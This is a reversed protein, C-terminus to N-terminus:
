EEGYFEGGSYKGGGNIIEDIGQIIEQIADGRAEIADLEEMASNDRKEANKLEEDAVKSLAHFYDLTAVLKSEKQPSKDGTFDSLIKQFVPHVHSRDREKQRAALLYALVDDDVELEYGEWTDQLMGIPDYQRVFFTKEGRSSDMIIHTRVAGM